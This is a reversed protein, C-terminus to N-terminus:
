IREPHWKQEINAGLKNTQQKVSYPVMPFQKWYFPTTKSKPNNPCM